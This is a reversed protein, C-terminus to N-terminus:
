IAEKTMYAPPTQIRGAIVGLPRQSPRLSDVWRRCETLASCQQCLAIAAAQRAQVADATLDSTPPDFQAWRGICRAGRLRPIGVLAAAFTDFDTM